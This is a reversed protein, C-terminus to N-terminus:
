QNHRNINVQVIQAYECILQSGPLDAGDEWHLVVTLVNGHRGGRDVDRDAEFDELM